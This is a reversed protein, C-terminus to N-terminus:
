GLVSGAPSPSTPSRASAAAMMVGVALLVGALLGPILGPSWAGVLGSLSPGLFLGGDVGVRYLATRVAVHEPATVTRLVSLPLMWGAMALGVLV